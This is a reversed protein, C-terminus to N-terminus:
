AARGPPRAPRLDGDEASADVGAEHHVCQWNRQRGDALADIADLHLAYLIRADAAQWELALDAGPERGLLELPADLVARQPMDAEGLRNLHNGVRDSPPEITDGILDGRLDCGAGDLALQQGHIGAVHGPEHLLADAVHLPLAADVSWRSAYRPAGSDNSETSISPDGRM